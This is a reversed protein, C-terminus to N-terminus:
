FVRVLSRQGADIFVDAAPFPLTRVCRGEADFAGVVGDANAVPALLQGSKEDWALFPKVSRSLRVSRLKAGARDYTEITTGNPDTVHLERRTSDYAVGCAPASRGQLAIVRVFEGFRNTEVLQPKVPNGLFLHGDVRSVALDSGGDPRAGQAVFERKIKRAPRDVVRIATGPALRLFFHDTFPDYAFGTVRENPRLWAPTDESADREFATDHIRAPQRSASYLHQPGSTACGGCACGLLLAM